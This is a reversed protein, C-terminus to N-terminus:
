FWWEVCIDCHSLLCANLLLRLWSIEM